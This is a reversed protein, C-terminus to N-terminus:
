ELDPQKKLQWNEWVFEFQYTLFHTESLAQQIRNMREKADPIVFDHFQVQINEFCTIKKQEILSELLDYEGGEINLKILDVKEIHHEELFEIISKLQIEVSNKSKVFVSSGLDMLSISENGTVRSLGMCHTFVKDNNKFKEEIIKYFDPVPEFAHVFCHYRESMYAAFDGEYSGVDLVMSNENLPYNLRLTEDGKAKFWPEVRQAQIKDNHARQARAEEDIPDIRQVTLLSRFKRYIKKLITIM